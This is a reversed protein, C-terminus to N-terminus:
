TKHYPEELKEVDAQASATEQQFKERQRAVEAAKQNKHSNITQEEFALIEVAGMKVNQGGQTAIFVQGEQVRKGCGPTLMPLSILMLSVVMVNSRYRMNGKRLTLRVPFLLFACNLVCAMYSGSGSNVTKM